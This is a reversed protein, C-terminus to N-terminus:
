RDTVIGNIVASSIIKETNGAETINVEYYCATKGNKVCKATAILKVGLRAPRFYSINATLTVTNPHGNEIISKANAAVAFCYDALTYIAGGQVAGTANSHKEETFLSCVAFYNDADEIQIGTTADAYIDDKFFDRVKKLNEKM